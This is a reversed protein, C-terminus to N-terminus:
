SKTVTFELSLAAVLNFTSQVTAISVTLQEKSVHRARSKASLRFTKSTESLVHDVLIQFDTSAKVFLM